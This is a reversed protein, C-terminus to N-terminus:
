LKGALTRGADTVYYGRGVNEVLGAGILTGLDIPTWDLVTLRGTTTRLAATRLEAKCREVARAVALGYGAAIAAGNMTNRVKM